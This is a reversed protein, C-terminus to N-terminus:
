CPSLSHVCNRCNTLLEKIITQQLKQTHTM